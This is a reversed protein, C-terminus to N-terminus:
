SRPISNIYDAGMETILRIYHEPHKMMLSALFSHKTALSMRSFVYVIGDVDKASLSEPMQIQMEM